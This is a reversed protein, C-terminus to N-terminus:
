GDTKEQEDALRDAHEEAEVRTRFPRGYKCLQPWIARWRRADAKLGVLLIAFEDRETEVRAIKKRLEDITALAAAEWRVEQRIDAGPLTYWFSVEERAEREQEPTLSPM